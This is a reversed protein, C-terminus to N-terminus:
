LVGDEANQIIVAGLGGALNKDNLTFEKGDNGALRIIQEPKSINRRSQDAFIRAM